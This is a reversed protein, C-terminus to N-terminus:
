FGIKGCCLCVDSIMVISIVVSVFSILLSNGFYRMVHLDRFTLFIDKWISSIGSAYIGPTGDSRKQLQFTFAMCASCASCISGLVSLYCNRNKDSKLRKENPKKISETRKKKM